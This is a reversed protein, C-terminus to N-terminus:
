FNDPICPWRISENDRGIVMNEKGGFAHEWIKNLDKPPAGSLEEDQLWLRLMHRKMNSGDRFAERGHLIRRNNFFVIDGTQYRVTCATSAAAFHLADLAAAQRKTVNPIGKPRVGHSSRVLSGRSFGMEPEGSGGFFMVPRRYFDGVGGPPRHCRRSRLLIASSM